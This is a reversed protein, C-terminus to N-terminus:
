ERIIPSGLSLKKILDELRLVRTYIKNLFRANSKKKVRAPDPEFTSWNTENLFHDKQFTAVNAALYNATKTEWEAVRKDLYEITGDEAQALLIKGEEWLSYLEKL